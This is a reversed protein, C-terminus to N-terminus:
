PMPREPQADGKHTRREAKLRRFEEEYARAFPEGFMRSFADDPDRVMDDWKERYLDWYRRKTSVLPLSGKSLLRDFEKQLADPSTEALMADFAVRLAAFMALQHDHLDDFADAFADVPGLYAANRKILLNHLADPLNVSFKLPNNDAPRFMTQDIGFESKIRQRARLAEMLGEVVVRLIRGFSRM